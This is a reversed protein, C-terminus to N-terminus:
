IEIGVCYALDSILQKEDFIFNNNYKESYEKVWLPRKKIFFETYDYGSRLELIQIAFCLPLVNTYDDRFYKFIMRKLMIKNQLVTNEEIDQSKRKPKQFQESEKEIARWWNKLKDFDIFKITKLDTIRNIKKRGKISYVPCVPNFFGRLSVEFINIISKRSFVVDLDKIETLFRRNLQIEFRWVNEHDSSFLCSDWYDHIHPKNKVSQLELSKNYFRIFRDGNRKGFNWGRNQGKSNSRVEFDKTKGTFEICNEVLLFKPLQFLWSEVVGGGMINADFDLAVDVRNFGSFKLCYLGFFEQLLSKLFIPHEYLFSNEIQLQGFNENIVSGSYPSYTLIGFEKGKYWVKAIKAMNKTSGKLLDIDWDKSPRLLEIQDKEGFFEVNIILYDLNIGFM